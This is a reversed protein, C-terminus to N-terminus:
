GAVLKNRVAYRVIWATSTVKPNRMTTARHSAITKVSLNLAM